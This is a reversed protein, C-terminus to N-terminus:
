VCLKKWIPGYPASHSRNLPALSPENKSGFIAVKTFWEYVSFWKPFHVVPGQLGHFSLTQCIKGSSFIYSWHSLLEFVTNQAEPARIELPPIRWPPGLPLRVLQGLAAIMPVSQTWIKTFDTKYPGFWPAKAEAGTTWGKAGTWTSVGPKVFISALPRLSESLITYCIIFM